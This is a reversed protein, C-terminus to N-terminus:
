NKNSREGVLLYIIDLGSEHFAGLYFGGPLHKGNLWFRVMRPSCELKRAIEAPTEGLKRSEERFREAFEDIDVM